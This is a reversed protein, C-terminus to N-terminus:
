RRIGEDVCHQRLEMPVIGEERVAVHRRQCGEHGSRLLNALTTRNFETYANCVEEDDNKNFALVFDAKKSVPM